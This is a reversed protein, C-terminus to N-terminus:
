SDKTIGRLGSLDKSFERLLNCPVSSKNTDTRQKSAEGLDIWAIHRFLLHCCKNPFCQFTGMKCLIHKRARWSGLLKSVAHCDQQSSYYGTLGQSCSQPLSSFLCCLSFGSLRLEACNIMLVNKSSLSKWM